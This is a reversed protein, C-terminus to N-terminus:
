SIRHIWDYSVEAVAVQGYQFGLLKTFKRHNYTYKHGFLGFTINGRNFGHGNYPEYTLSSLLKLTLNRYDSQNFMSRINPEIGLAKLCDSDPYRTPLMLRESLAKYRKKQIDDRFHVHMGDFNQMRFTHNTHIFFVSFQLTILWCNTEKTPLFYTM